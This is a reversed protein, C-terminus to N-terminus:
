DEVPIRADVITEIRERAEQPFSASVEAFFGEILLRRSEKPTYGRSELYFLQRADLKGTTSGHSCRVEDTNIELMPISDAEAEDGLVLNNNTLYADTDLADHDVKILGQFVSRAEDAVAGKYLALSHAKPARHDQVTKMDVHQDQHPFYVGGFYADGGPGAMEGEMRYKSLLGGFVASYVRLAADRGVSAYGNSFYSSDINVDQLLFYDVKSGQALDLTIGENFLVEGSVETDSQHLLSFRAGEDAVVVVQPSRMVGATTESFTVRFPEHIELFPPVYLVVGHTMTVYHWLALRNDARELGKRLAEAVIRAVKEPLAGAAVEEFGALLCGKAALEPDLSRSATAAGEFVIEGPTARPPAEQTLTKEDRSFSWADFDFSSLDTRRFEEDQASPWELRSFRELAVKRIDRLWAPEALGEIYAGLTELSSNTYVATSM